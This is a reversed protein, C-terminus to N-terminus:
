GGVLRLGGGCKREFWPIHLPHVDPFVRQIFRQDEVSETLGLFWEAPRGKYKDYYKVRLMFFSVGKFAVARPVVELYRPLRHEALLGQKLRGSLVAVQRADRLFCELCCDFEHEIIEPVIRRLIRDIAGQLCVTGLRKMRGVWTM